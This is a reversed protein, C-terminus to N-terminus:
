NFTNKFVSLDFSYPDLRTGEFYQAEYHCYLVAGPM